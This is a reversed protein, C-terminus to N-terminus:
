KACTRRKTPVTGSILLRAESDSTTELKQKVSSPSRWTLGAKEYATAEKIERKSSSRRENAPSASTAGPRHNALRSLM